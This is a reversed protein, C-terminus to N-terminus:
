KVVIKGSFRPIAKVFVTGDKGVHIDCVVEQYGNKTVRYVGTLARGGKKHKQEPILIQLEDEDSDEVPKWDDDSFKLEFPQAERYQLIAGVIGVVVGIATVIPIPIAAVLIGLIIVILNFLSSSKM